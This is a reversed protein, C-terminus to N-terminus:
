QIIKQLLFVNREQEIMEFNPIKNNWKNWFIKEQGRPLAVLLYQIQNLTGTENPRRISIFKPDNSDKCSPAYSIRGDMWFSTMSYNQCFNDPLIRPLLIWAATERPEISHIGILTNSPIKSLQNSIKEYHNSNSLMIQLYREKLAYNSLILLALLTTLIGVKATSSLQNQKSRFYKEFWFFLISLTIMNMLPIIVVAFRYNIKDFHYTSSSHLQALMQAIPALLILLWALSKEKKIVMRLAFVITFLYFIIEYLFNEKLVEILLLCNQIFGITAPERGSGAINGSIFYNWGIMLTAPIAAIFVYKIRQITQDRSGSFIYILGFYAAIYGGIYRQLPVLCIALTFLKDSPKSQIIELLFVAAALLLLAYGPETWISNFTYVTSVNLFITVFFLIALSIKEFYRLGLWFLGSFIISLYVFLINIYSLHFIRLLGLCWSYLPAYRANKEFGGQSFYEAIMLYWGSDPTERFGHMRFFAALAVSPLFILALKFWNRQDTM